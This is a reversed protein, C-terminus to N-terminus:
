LDYFKMTPQFVQDIDGTEIFSLISEIYLNIANFITQKKNQIIIKKTTQKVLAIRHEKQFILAERLEKYVYCDIIPRFPEIFDDSLNFKNQPGHHFFGFTTNLGKSVLARSIQSRLIAYGYNLGANIVDDEFRMFESGFLNRFYMKASLGERNYQDGDSVEEEFQKLKELVEKDAEIFQLMARQNYIKHKVIIDHLMIKQQKTWNLQKTQAEMSLHHGFLPFIISSPMHEIDCLVVNVKNETLANILHISLTTKYNDIILSHVDSLPVLIDDDYNKIKINDLYLSLHESEEIFIVRWSM